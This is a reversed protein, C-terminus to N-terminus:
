YARMRGDVCLVATQETRVDVRRRAMAAIWDGAKGADAVLRIKLHITKVEPARGFGASAAARGPRDTGHGGRPGPEALRPVRERV